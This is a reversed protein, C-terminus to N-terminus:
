KSTHVSPPDPIGQVSHMSKYQPPKVTTTLDPNMGKRSATKAPEEKTPIKYLQLVSEFFIIANPNQIKQTKDELPMQKRM